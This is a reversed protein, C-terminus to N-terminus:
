SPDYSSANQTLTYVQDDGSSNTLSGCLESPLIENVDTWKVSPVTNNDTGGNAFRYYVGNLVTSASKADVIVNGDVEQTTPYVNLEKKCSWLFSVTLVSLIYKINRRKM